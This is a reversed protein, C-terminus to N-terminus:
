DWNVFEQEEKLKINNKEYVENKVLNILNYIDNGTANNYNIIFNAHKRSVMAGGITKGKLGVDEILKGAPINEPNRFVSGASPYELPQSLLRRQKRDDVIELMEKKDGKKLIMTASICILNTHTQLYSSRYHFDLESNYLTTVELNNTDLVEVESTVYGMDLKYAGANMFVAGGVSGPIGTAFELGSLGRKTVELALKMLSYGAGVKVVTDNIEIKNFEDLRILCGEYDMDSFILNSGRGIIKYKIKNEKLTKITYILKDIDKPMVVIKAIGGIKYTNYKKISEDVLVKGVKEKRLLRIVNDM